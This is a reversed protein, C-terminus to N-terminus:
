IVGTPIGSRPNKELNLIQATQPHPLQSHKLVFSIMFVWLVLREWKRGTLETEHWASSHFTALGGPPLERKGKMFCSPGPSSCATLVDLFPCPSGTSVGVSPLSEALVAVRQLNRLSINFDNKQGVGV